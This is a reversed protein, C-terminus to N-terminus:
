PGHYKGESSSGASAVPVKAQPREQMHVYVETLALVLSCPVAYIYMKSFRLKRLKATAELRIRERDKRYGSVMGESICFEDATDKNRAHETRGCSRLFSSGVIHM